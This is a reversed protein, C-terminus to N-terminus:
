EKKLLRQPLKVGIGTVRTCKEFYLAFIFSKYSYDTQVDFLLDAKDKVANQVAAEYSEDGTYVMWLWSTGCSTGELKGVPEMGRVDSYSQSYYWGPSKINTYLCNTLFMIAFVIPISASIKRFSFQM